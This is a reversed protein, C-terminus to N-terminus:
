CIKAKKVIFWRFASDRMYCHIKKCAIGIRIITGHDSQFFLFNIKLCSVRVSFLKTQSQSKISTSLSLSSVITQFFILYFNYSLGKLQCRLFSIFYLIRRFMFISIYVSRLIKPGNQRELNFSQVARLLKQVIKASRSRFIKTKRGWCKTM